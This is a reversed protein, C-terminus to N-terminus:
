GGYLQKLSLVNSLKWLVYTLKCYSVCFPGTARSYGSDAEGARVALLTICLTAQWSRISHTSHARYPDTVCLKRSSIQAVVVRRRRAETKREWRLRVVISPAALEWSAKGIMTPATPISGVVPRTYSSQEVASSRAWRTLEVESTLQSDFWACTNASRSKRASIYRMASQSSSFSHVQRSPFRSRHNVVSGLVRVRSEVVNAASFRPARTCEIELESEDCSFPSDISSVIRDCALAVELVAARGVRKGIKQGLVVTDFKIQNRRRM